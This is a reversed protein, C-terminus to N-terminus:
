GSTFSVRNISADAAHTASLSHTTSPGAELPRAPVDEDHEEAVYLQSRNPRARALRWPRALAEGAHEEVASLPGAAAMKAFTPLLRPTRPSAAFPGASVGGDLIEATLIPETAGPSTARAAPCEEATAMKAFPENMGAKSTQRLVRATLLFPPQFCSGLFIPSPGALSLSFLSFPIGVRETRPGGV